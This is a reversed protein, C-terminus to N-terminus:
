YTWEQPLIQIEDINPAEVHIKGQGKSRVREDRPSAHHPSGATRASVLSAACDSHTKFHLELAELVRTPILVTSLGSKKKPQVPNNTVRPLFVGTGSSSGNRSGPGGLFIARMGSGSNEKRGVGSRWDRDRCREYNHEMKQTQMQQTLEAGKVRGGRSVRVQDGVPSQNKLKICPNRPNAHDLIPRNSSFVYKLNEQTVSNREEEEEEHLMCEAMQRSLEAAFDGDESESSGLESGFPSTFGSSSSDCTSSYYNSSPIRWQSKMTTNNCECSTDRKEQLKFLDVYLSTKREEFEFGM